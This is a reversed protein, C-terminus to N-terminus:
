ADSDEQKNYITCIIEISRFINQFEIWHWNKFWLVGSRHNVEGIFPTENHKWAKLIDGEYIERDKKDRLGTFQGVTEPIVEFVEVPNENDSWLHHNCLDSEVIIVPRGESKGAYTTSLCYNGYVWEGNGVRKGRFKIERL